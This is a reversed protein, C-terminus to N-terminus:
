TVREQCPTASDLPGLFRTEGTTLARTCLAGERDQSLRRRCRICVGGVLDHSVWQPLHAFSM